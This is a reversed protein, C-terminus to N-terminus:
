GGCGTHIALRGMGSIAIGTCKLALDIPARNFRLQPGSNPINNNSLLWNIGDALDDPFKKVDGRLRSGLSYPHNRSEVIRSNKPRGYKPRGGLKKTHIRKSMSKKLRSTRKITRKYRGKM